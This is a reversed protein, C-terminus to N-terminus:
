LLGTNALHHSCCRRGVGSSVAAIGAVGFRTELARQDLCSCAAQQWGRAVDGFHSVDSAQAADVLAAWPPAMFGAARLTADAHAAARTCPPGLAGHPDALPHQFSATKPSTRSRARQRLKRAGGATRRGAAWPHCHRQHLLGCGKAACPRCPKLAGAQGDPLRQLVHEPEGLIRARAAQEQAASSSAERQARPAYTAAATSAQKLRRKLSFIGKVPRHQDRNGELPTTARGTCNFRRTSPNLLCQESTSMM